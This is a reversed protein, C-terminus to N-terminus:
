GGWIIFEGHPMVPHISVEVTTGDADRGLRLAIQSGHLTGGSAGVLAPLDARDVQVCTGKWIPPSGAPYRSSVQGARATPRGQLVHKAARPLQTIAIPESFSGDASVRSPCVAYAAPQHHRASPEAWVGAFLGGVPDRLFADWGFVGSWLLVSGIPSLRREFVAAATDGQWIVRGDAYALGWGVHLIGHTAVLVSTATSDAGSWRASQAGQEGRIQPPSSGRGAVLAGIALATGLILVTVARRRARRRAQEIVTVEVAHPLSDSADLPGPAATLGMTREEASSVITVLLM